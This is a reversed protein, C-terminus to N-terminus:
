ICRLDIPLECGDDFESAAAVAIGAIEEADDLRDYTSFLSGLAFNRGSGIAWFREYEYVERWTFMGFIGKPSVILADIQSSEYDPHDEGDFTNLYYEEKLIAHMRLYSSFIERESNFSLEDRYRDLLDALVHEHATAGVTGIFSDGFAQIKTRDRLYVSKINISGVSYNRDAAIVIKDNKKVVVIISM